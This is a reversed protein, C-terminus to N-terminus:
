REGESVIALIALLLGIQTSYFSVYGIAMSIISAVVLVATLNKM